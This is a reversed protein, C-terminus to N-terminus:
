RSGRNMHDSKSRIQLVHSPLVAEFEFCTVIRIMARGFLGGQVGILEAGVEGQDLHGPQEPVRDLPLQALGSVEAVHLELEQGPEAVRRGAAVPHGIQGVADDVAAAAEGVLCAQQLLRAQHRARGGGVVLAAHGDRDGLRTARPQLLDEGAM